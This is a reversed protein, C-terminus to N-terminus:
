NQCFPNSWDGSEVVLSELNIFTIIVSLQKVDALLNDEIQLNKLNRNTKNSLGILSEINVIKNHSFNAEELNVLNEIGNLSSLHNCSMNIRKLSKLNYTLSTTMNQIENSSLDLVLLNTFDQIGQMSKLSSHNILLYNTDVKDSTIIEEIEELVENEKAYLELKIYKNM